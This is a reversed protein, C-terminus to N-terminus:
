KSSILAKLVLPLRDSVDPSAIVITLWFPLIRALGTLSFSNAKLATNADATQNACGRIDPYSRTHPPVVGTAVAVEVVEDDFNGNDPPPAEEIFDDQCSSVLIRQLPEDVLDLRLELLGVSAEAGLLCRSDFWLWAPLPAQPV